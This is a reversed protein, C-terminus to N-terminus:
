INYDLISNLGRAVLFKDAFIINKIPSDFDFHDGGTLFVLLSPFKKQFHRIYGEIEYRIGEKAGSRIATPTDYGICPTEGDADVLPLRATQEHMAKLRMHMGPSINGGWYQGQNDLFDYTICTGADIVLLDRGPQQQAAGVVAAIRDSGLTQPTHYNNKVYPIPMTSRFRLVPFPLENLRREAEPTIYAVSCVIAKGIDTRVSLQDLAELTKNNTLLMEVPTGEDFIVLKAQTNGIDIVLNM